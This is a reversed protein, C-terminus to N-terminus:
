ELPLKLAQIVEKSNVVSKRITEGFEAPAQYASDAGMSEIMSVIQPSAIAQAIEASLQNVIAEPMGRPGVFGYVVTADLEPRGSAEAITPVSPMLPNRKASGVAIARVNGAKVQPFGGAVSVVNLQVVGAIVDTMQQGTSKYPVSTIDMGMALKVGEMSLFSASGTGSTAYNLKGPNKKAYERMESFNTFPANKNGVIMLPTTLVRAIPTFQGVPDYSPTKHFYPVSSFPPSAILGIVSGNPPATAIALAGVQGGAGEKNEIVVPIRLQEALREGIRRAVPDPGSSAGFPVIIRLSQAPYATQAKASQPAVAFAGTVVVAVTIIGFISSSRM